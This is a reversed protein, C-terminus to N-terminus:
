HSQIKLHSWKKGHKIDSIQQRSVPYLKTLETATLPSIKIELVQVETLKTKPNLIGKPLIRRGKVICDNNNIAATGLFLHHPNVCSPTDCKHCIQGKAPISQKFALQWAVRSAKRVKGEFWFMGYGNQDKAGDWLWCDEESGKIFKDNFREEPTKTWRM